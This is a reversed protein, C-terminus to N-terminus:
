EGIARLEFAVDVFRAYLRDGEDAHDPAVAGSDRAKGAPWLPHVPQALALLDDRTWGHELLERAFGARERIGAAREDGHEDLFAVLREAAAVYRRLQQKRDRDDYAGGLVRRLWGM